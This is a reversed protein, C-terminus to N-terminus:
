HQDNNFHHIPTQGLTPLTQKRPGPGKCGILECDLEADRDTVLLVDAM